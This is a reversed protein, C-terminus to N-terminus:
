VKSSFTHNCGVPHCLKRPHGPWLQDAIVLWAPFLGGPHRCASAPPCVRLSLQPMHLMHHEGCTPFLQTLALQPQHTPMCLSDPRPWPWSAQLISYGCQSSLWVTTVPGVPVEHYSFLQMRQACPQLPASRSPGRRPWCVCVCGNNISWTAPAVFAFHLM